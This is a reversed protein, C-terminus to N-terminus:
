TPHGGIQRLADWMAKVSDRKSSAWLRRAGEIAEHEQQTLPRGLRREQYAVFKSPRM